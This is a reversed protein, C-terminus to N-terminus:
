HVYGVGPRAEFLVLPVDFVRSVQVLPGQSQVGVRSIHSVRPTQELALVVVWRPGELDELAPRVLPTEQGHRRRLRPEM